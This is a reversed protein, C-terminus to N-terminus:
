PKQFIIESGKGGECVPTEDGSIASVVVGSPLQLAECGYDDTIIKVDAGKVGSEELVAQTMAQADPIPNVASWVSCFNGSADVYAYTDTSGKPAQYETEGDTTAGKVWGQGVLGADMAPAAGIALVCVSIGSIMDDVAPTSQAAAALPLLSITLALAATKKM